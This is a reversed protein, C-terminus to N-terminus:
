EEALFANSTADAASGEGPLQVAKLFEFDSSSIALHRIILTSDFTVAGLKDVNVHVRSITLYNSQDCQPCRCLNLRLSEPIIEFIPTYQRLASIGGGSLEYELDPEASDHTWLLRVLEFDEKTWCNCEECFPLNGTSAYGIVQPVGIITAAELAWIGALASGHVVERNEGLSWFGEKYFTTVYNELDLPHWLVPVNGIGFRAMGDFIWALYLGWLSCVLTVFVVLPNNRIRYASACNSVVTGLVVGFAVPAAIAAYIWPIWNLAFVYPIALAMSSILGGVILVFPAAFSMNGSHRYTNALM